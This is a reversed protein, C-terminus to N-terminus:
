GAEGTVGDLLAINDQSVVEVVRGAPAKGPVRPKWADIV